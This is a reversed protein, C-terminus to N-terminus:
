TFELARNLPTPVYLVLDHAVVEAQMHRFYELWEEEGGVVCLICRVVVMSSSVRSPRHCPSYRDASCKFRLPALGASEQENALQEGQVTNTPLRDISVCDVGISRLFDYESAAMGKARIKEQIFM